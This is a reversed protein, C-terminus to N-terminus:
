VVAKLAARELQDAANEARDSLDVIHHLCQKLHLRHAFDLSTEAFILNTLRYEQDDVVSEMECVKKVAKRVDELTGKSSVFSEMGKELPKFVGFSNLTVERLPNKLAEPVAPRESLLFDTCAEAANAVDDIMQVVHYVDDRLDAPTSGTYLRELIKRRLRDAESELADVEQNLAHPAPENSTLYHNVTEQSREVCEAVTDVFRQLLELLRKEKKKFSLMASRRGNTIKMGSARGPEDGRGAAM